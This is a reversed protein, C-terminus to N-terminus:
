KTEEAPKEPTAEAAPKDGEAAPKDGEAPMDAKPADTAPPAETEPKAAPKPPTCGIVTLSMSLLLAYISFKKM